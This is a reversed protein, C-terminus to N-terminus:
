TEIEKLLFPLPPEKHQKFWLATEGVLIYEVVVAVFVAFLGFTVDVKLVTFLYDLRKVKVKVRVQQRDLRVM